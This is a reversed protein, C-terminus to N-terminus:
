QLKKKEWKALFLVLLKIASSFKRLKRMCSHSLDFFFKVKLLSKGNQILM